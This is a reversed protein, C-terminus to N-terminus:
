VIRSALKRRESATLEPLAAGDGALGEREPLQFRELGECSQKGRSGNLGRKRSQMSCVESKWPTPKLINACVRFYRLGM